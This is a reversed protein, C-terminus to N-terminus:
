DNSNPTFRRPAAVPAFHECVAYRPTMIRVGDEEAYSFRVGPAIMDTKDCFGWRNSQQDWYRCRKCQDPRPEKKTDEM